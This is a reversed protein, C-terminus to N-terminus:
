CGGGLVRGAVAAIVPVACREIAALEIGLSTVQEAGAADMGRNRFEKLDGGALFVESRSSALVVTCVASDGEADRLARCLGAALARNIANKARPRDVTVLLASGVRESRLVVRSAPQSRRRGPGGRARPHRGGRGGRE